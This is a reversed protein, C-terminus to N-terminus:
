ILFDVPTDPAGSDFAQQDANSFEDATFSVPDSAAEDGTVSPLVLDEGVWNGQEDQYWISLAEVNSLKLEFTDGDAEGSVTFFDDEPDGPNGAHAKVTVTSAADASLNLQLEDSDVGGDM